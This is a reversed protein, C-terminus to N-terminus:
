GAKKQASAKTRGRRAQVQQSAVGLKKYNSRARKKAASSAKATYEDITQCGYIKKVLMANVQFFLEEFIHEEWEVPISLGMRRMHSLYDQIITQIFVGRDSNPDQFNFLHQEFITYLPDQKTASDLSTM